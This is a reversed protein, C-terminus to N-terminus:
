SAVIIARMTGSDTHSHDILPPLEGEEVEWNQAAVFARASALLQEHLLRGRAEAVPFSPTRTM